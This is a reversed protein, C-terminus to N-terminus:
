TPRRENDASALHVFSRANVLRTTQHAFQSRTNPLRHDPRGQLHGAGGPVKVLAMLWWWASMCAPLHPARLVQVRGAPHGPRPHSRLSCGRGGSFDLPGVNTSQLKHDGTVAECSPGSPGASAGCPIVASSALTALM